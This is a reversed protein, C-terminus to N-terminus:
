EQPCSYKPHSHCACDSFSTPIALVLSYFTMHASGTQYYKFSSSYIKPNYFIETYQSKFIYKIQKVYVIQSGHSRIQCCLNYKTEHLWLIYSGSLMNSIM